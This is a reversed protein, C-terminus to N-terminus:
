SARPKSMLATAVKAQIGGAAAPIPQRTPPQSELRSSRSFSGSSWARFIARPALAIRMGSMRNTGLTGTAQAIASKLM